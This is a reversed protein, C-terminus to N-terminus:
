FVEENFIMEYKKGKFLNDKTVGLPCNQLQVKQKDGEIILEEVYYVELLGAENGLAQYPIYVPPQVHLLGLKELLQESVIHVGSKTYPDILRNGTDYFGHIRIKNGHHLLEAQFIGKQTKAYKKWLQVGVIVAGCAFLLYFLFSGHEGLQNWLLELVGNIIMLYFYGLLVCQILQKREKGILFFIMMPVELLYVGLVFREYSGSFLLGVIEFATGLFSTFVIRGIKKINLADKYFKSSYLSLYLVAIKMIFNQIFYVDAYFIYRM